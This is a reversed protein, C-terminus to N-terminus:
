GSTAPPLDRRANHSLPPQDDHRTARPGSLSSLFGLASCGYLARSDSASEESTKDTALGAPLVGKLELRLEDAYWCPAASTSRSIRLATIGIRNVENLCVLVTPM